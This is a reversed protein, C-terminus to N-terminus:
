EDADKSLNNWVVRFWADMRSVMEREADTGNRSFGIFSAREGRYDWFQRTEGALLVDTEAIPYFALFLRDNNVLVMKFLPALRHMRVEMLATISPFRSSITRFYNRFEQAFRRNRDVIAAKYDADESLSGRLVPLAMHASCDPVLLKINLKKPRRQGEAIELLFESLVGYFTEGSYAAISLEIEPESFAERLVPRLDSFHRLVPLSDSAPTETVSSIVTEFLLYALAVVVGFGVYKKDVIYNAVPPVLQAVVSVAVVALLLLRVLTLRLTDWARDLRALSTRIKSAATSATV